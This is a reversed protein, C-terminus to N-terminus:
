LDSILLHYQAEDFMQVRKMTLLMTIANTQSINGQRSALIVFAGTRYASVANRNAFNRAKKDDIVLLHNRQFALSIAEAEGTGLPPIHSATFPELTLLREVFVLDNLNYQILYQEITQNKTKILEDAVANPILIKEFLISFYTFHEKEKEMCMFPSSDAVVIPKM